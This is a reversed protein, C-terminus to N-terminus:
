GTPVALVMVIIYLLVVVTAALPLWYYKASIM